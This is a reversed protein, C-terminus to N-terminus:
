QFAWNAFEPDDYGSEGDSLMQVRPNLEPGNQNPTQNKVPPEYVELQDVDILDGFDDSHSILAGNHRSYDPIIKTNTKTKQYLKRKSYNKAEIKNWEDFKDFKTNKHHTIPYIHPYAIPPVEHIWAYHYLDDPDSLIIVAVAKERELVDWIEGYERKIFKTRMIKTYRAKNIISWKTVITDFEAKNFTGPSFNRWTLVMPANPPDM